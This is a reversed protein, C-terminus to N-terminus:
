EYHHPRPNSDGLRCWQRGLQGSDGGIRCNVKGEGQQFEAKGTSLKPILWAWQFPSAVCSGLANNVM